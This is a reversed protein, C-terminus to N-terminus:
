KFLKRKNYERKAINICGVNFTDLLYKVQEKTFIVKIDYDAVRYEDDMSEMILYTNENIERSLRSEMTSSNPDTDKFLNFMKGQYLEKFNYNNADSMRLENYKFLMARFASLEKANIYIEAKNSIGQECYLTFLSDSPKYTIKMEGQRPIPHKHSAYNALYSNGSIHTWVKYETTDKDFNDDVVEIADPTSYMAREIANGEIVNVSWIVGALGIVIASIGIKYNM